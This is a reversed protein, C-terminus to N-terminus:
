QRGGDPDHVGKWNLYDGSNAFVKGSAKSHYVATKPFILPPAIGIAERQALHAAVTKPFGVYNIRSGNVYYTHLLHALADPLGQWQPTQEHLWLTPSKLGPLARALRGRVADRLHDRPTDFFAGDYGALLQGDLEMPLQEFFRTDVAIGLPQGLEAILRFKGAPVPSTSVFLLKTAQAVGSTTSLFLCLLLSALCRLTILRRMFSPTM